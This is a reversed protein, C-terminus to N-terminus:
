LLIEDSIGVKGIDHLMASIEIQKVFEPTVVSCYNPHTQLSEALVRALHKMRRLHEGTAPNRCTLWAM